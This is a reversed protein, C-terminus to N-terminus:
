KVDGDVLLRKWKMNELFVKKAEIAGLIYDNQLEVESLGKDANEKQKELALLQNVYGFETPFENSIELMTLVESAKDKLKEKMDRGSQEGLCLMLGYWRGHYRASTVGKKDVSKIIAKIFMAPLYVNNLEIADKFMHAVVDVEMGAAGCGIPLVYFMLEAHSRSFEVFRSVAEAMIETRHRHVPIAYSQGSMGEAKGEIAGYKETASLAAGSKHHGNPKAGFVFVENERLNDIREPTCRNALMQECRQQIETNTMDCVGQNTDPM